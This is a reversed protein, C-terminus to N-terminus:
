LLDKLKENVQKEVEDNLWLLLSEKIDTAIQQKIDQIIQQKITEIDHNFPNELQVFKNKALNKYLPETLKTQETLQKILRTENEQQKAILSDRDDSKPKETIPSTPTPVNNQIPKDDTNMLTDITKDLNDVQFQFTDIDTDPHLFTIIDQLQNIITQKVAPPTKLWRQPFQYSFSITM